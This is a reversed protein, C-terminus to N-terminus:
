GVAGGCAGLLYYVTLIGQLVVVQRQQLVPVHKPRLNDLTVGVVITGISGICSIVLSYESYEVFLIM